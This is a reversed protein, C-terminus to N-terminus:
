ASKEPAPSSGPTRWAGLAEEIILEQEAATMGCFYHGAGILAPYDCLMTWHSGQRLLQEKMADVNVSGDPLRYGGERWLMWLGMGFVADVIVSRPPIEFM